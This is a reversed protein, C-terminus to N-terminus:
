SCRVPDKDAHGIANYRWRQGSGHVGKMRSYLILIASNAKGLVPQIRAHEGHGVRAIEIEASGVPGATGYQGDDVKVDGAVLVPHPNDVQCM